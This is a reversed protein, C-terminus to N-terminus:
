HSFDYSARLRHARPKFVSTSFIERSDLSSPGVSPAQQRARVNAYCPNGYKEEHDM